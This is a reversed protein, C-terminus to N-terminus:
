GAARRKAAARIVGRYYIHRGIQTVRAMAKSWGPSVYDAHYWLAGNTPDPLDLFLMTYAIHEAERWAKPNGPTKSKGDCAWSFQCRHLGREVGQHVVGCITDPFAKHGVRNLTVAAVAFRGLTPESRAEWYINLALCKVENNVDNGIRRTWRSPVRSTRLAEHDPATVALATRLAATAAAEDAFVATDVATVADVLAEAIAMPAAADIVAEPTPASAQDPREVLDLDAIEGEEAAGSATPIATFAAENEARAFPVTIGALAFLADAPPELVAVEAAANGDVSQASDSGPSAHQEVAPQDLASQRFAPQAVAAQAVAPIVLDMRSREHIDVVSVATSAAVAALAVWLYMDRKM